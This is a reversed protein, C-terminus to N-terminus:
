YAGEGRLMVPITQIMIQIDLWISWNRIYQMDLRIREAYSIDSRGSVQWLGTIGPRVTLLNIGWQNYKEMEEPSIMRPGVLSMERKVVNIFQLLEDLSFRRLFKGLPTVRPDNKLKHNKALEEHLDPHQALIEDGNIYMTRFKYADFQKGNLGMVRRRHIIPGPSSLKIAIAISLYLPSILVITPIILAMEYLSKLASDIGTLRVKNVGVLPIYAFEKVTLGTTIIEYLGSSMRVNINDCIGYTRFIDLLKDRSSIASSALIIEEIGYKQIVADLDELKGLIRLNEPLTDNVKLKKDIFGIVDLGSTRMSKLQRALLIGEENAGVMLTPALFYGKKRLAYVVRRLWFRGSSAFLFSFIWAMLLWGRAIVFNPELFTLVILLLMGASIARFVLAYEEPGGLLNQRSYLGATRFILLYAPILILLIRDYLSSPVAPDMYFVGIQASFRLYYAWKFAIFIMAIDNLALILKYCAWQVRRSAALQDIWSKM